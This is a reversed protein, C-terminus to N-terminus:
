EPKEPTEAKAKVAKEKKPKPASIDVAGYNNILYEAIPPPLDYEQAPFTVRPVSAMRDLRIKM